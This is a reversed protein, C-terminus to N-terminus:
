EIEEKLGNVEECKTEDETALPDTINIEDMCIEEEKCLVVHELPQLVGEKLFFNVCIVFHFCKYFYHPNKMRCLYEITTYCYGRM